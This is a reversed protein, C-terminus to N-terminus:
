IGIDKAIYIQRYLDTVTIFLRLKEIVKIDTIECSRELGLMLHEREYEALWILERKKEKVNEGKLFDLSNLNREIRDRAVSGYDKYQRCM